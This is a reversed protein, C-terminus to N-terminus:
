FFPLFEPLTKLWQTVHRHGNGFTTWESIIPCMTLPNVNFLTVLWQAVKLRGSECSCRFALNMVDAPPRAVGPLTYLWQAIELLGRVCALHFARYSRATPDVGALTILWRAVTLQGEVCASIFAFNNSAAPDIGPLTILWKAVELHGKFCAWQFPMCERFTEAVGPLSYLWQAVELHGGGCALQFPSNQVDDQLWQATELKDQLCTMSFIWNNQAAPDVDPLALLWQAVALQGFKCATNFGTQRTSTEPPLPLVSRLLRQKGLSCASKFSKETWRCYRKMERKTSNKELSFLQAWESCVQRLAVWEPVDFCSSLEALLLENGLLDALMM